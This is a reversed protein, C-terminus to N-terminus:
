SRHVFTSLAPPFIEYVDSARASDPFLSKTINGILLPNNHARTHTHAHAHAHMYTNEAMSIYNFSLVCM